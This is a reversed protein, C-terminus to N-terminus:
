KSEKPTYSYCGGQTNTSSKRPKQLKNFETGETPNLGPPNKKAESGLKLLSWLIEGEWSEAAGGASGPEKVRATTFIYELAM